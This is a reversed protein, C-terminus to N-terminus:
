RNLSPAYDCYNMLRTTDAIFKLVLRVITLKCSYFEGSKPMVVREGQDQISLEIILNKTFTKQILSVYRDTKHVVTKHQTTM